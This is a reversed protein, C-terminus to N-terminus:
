GFRNKSLCSGQLAVVAGLGLPHRLRGGFMPCAGSWHVGCTVEDAGVSSAGEGFLQAGELEQRHEDVVVGLKHTCSLELRESISPVVEDLEVGRKSVMGVAIHTDEPAVIAGLVPIGLQAVVAGFAADVM